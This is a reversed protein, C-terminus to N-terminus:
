QQRARPSEAPLGQRLLLVSAAALWTLGLPLLSAHGHLGAIEGLNWAAHLDPHGRLRGPQARFTVFSQNNVSLDGDKFAPWLLETVPSKLDAPPQPTTSVAILTLAAGWLWGASLVVRGWSRWADWLPALGLALFPLAPTLQRPAYAWGGEWYYYSANFLVYFGAIAAAVVIPRRRSRTRGIMVLGIPTLTVLPSLPLLGRYSGVLIERLRWWAPYTLGFLGTNLRGLPSDEVAYGIHLPSGFALANHVFLVLGALLGGVLIWMAAAPVESSNRDRVNALALIVIFSAPVASQLESLVTLGTWLGVAWAQRHVRSARGEPGALLRVQSTREAAQGLNIAAAYALMLSGATLGHGMFITAYCWAPSAIGYATAAFIAAGRSFGWFLALRMVLLAAVLTFLGSTVVTAVYSTWAIGVDGEPDVHALRSVGRALAVPALALLSAGPAKDSYYHGLRLAKDGTSEHYADIQLTHRELIARVVAFRANQNWGGAQYFYAYSVFLAVGLVVASARDSLRPM